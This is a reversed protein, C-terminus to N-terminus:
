VGCGWHQRSRFVLRLQGREEQRQRETEREGVEGVVLAIIEFKLGGVGAVGEGERGGGSEGEPEMKACTFHGRSLAFPPPLPTLSPLFCGTWNIEPFLFDKCPPPLLRWLQSDAGM